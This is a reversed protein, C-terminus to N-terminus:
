ECPLCLSEPGSWVGNKECTRKDSGHLHFGPNCKFVAEAGLRIRVEGERLEGNTLRVEGNQPAVPPQCASSCEIETTM